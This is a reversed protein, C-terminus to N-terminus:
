KKTNKSNGNNNKNNENRNSNANHNANNNNGNNNNNHLLLLLLVAVVLVAHYFLTDFSPLATKITSIPKVSALVGGLLNEPDGFVLWLRGWFAGLAM